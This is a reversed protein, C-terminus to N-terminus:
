KTKAATSSKNLGKKAKIMKQAYAGAFAGAVVVGIMLYRNSIPRFKKIAFYTGVAGVVAGVANTKATAMLTKGSDLIAM